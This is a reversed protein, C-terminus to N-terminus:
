LISFSITFFLLTSLTLFTFILSSYMFANLPSTLLLDPSLHSPSYGQLPPDLPIYKTFFTYWSPSVVKLVSMYM